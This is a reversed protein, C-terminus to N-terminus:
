IDRYVTSRHRVYYVVVRRMGADVEYVVRYDSLRLRYLREAGSLKMAGRPLPNTSLAGIRSLTRAVVASPLQRLDREVSPKLVLEYPAPDRM